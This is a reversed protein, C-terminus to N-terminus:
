RDKPTDREIQQNIAAAAAQECLSRCEEEVYEQTRVVCLDSVPMIGRTHENDL